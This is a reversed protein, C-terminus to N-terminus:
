LIKELAKRVLLNDKLGYVPPKNKLIEEITNSLEDAKTLYLYNNKALSDLFRQHKRDLGEAEFVVVYRRSNVAESIMSISEPSTVIIQSLALIGGMAEPINKENAVVLLKCRSYDKLEDKVLNEIEGSTRRSTTVLIDADLRECASKIETIVESMTDKGLFFDKTDGGILLGICFSLARNKDKIGPMLKESEEKLYQEDILNLAGETVVVNKRRPPRDHRPMIVLDFRDTSLISPRMIVVSRALNERSLVYNIPSLASGCSIVIDPKISILRKYNEKKLFTRLCWLCGQCRYKGALCNSLVLAYRSFKNKFDVEVTDINSSIGNDKLCNDFMKALAEAQRLHGTKGDSLILINRQCSYKWIKYSWLYEKPYKLIYKEFIHVIEQLNSRVDNDLNGTKKIKFAPEIIIKLYPGNLRIYFAPILATDYKLATRIAGMAMSADKGFFKVLVGNKGGQDVNMGVAENDKLVQILQRLQNQRQIMKCGKHSRYSNLLRNLRPLRQGRIFLNFPFGLNACIISSLEWSGEHVGLLIIGKCKKFGETIHELGDFSIYKNIYEKDLLPILFIEILNQGFTRYFEKTLNSTECPSLKAGFATKINSYAISKHKVDFYYLLGGLGKGLLLGLGVPLARILPGFLRFLACSLYDILSDKSM